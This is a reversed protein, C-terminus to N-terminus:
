GGRAQHRTRRAIRRADGRLADRLLLRVGRHDRGGVHARAGRRRQSRSRAWSHARRDDAGLAPASRTIVSPSQAFTAVPGVERVKGLVPDDIEVVEGNAIIQPHDLAEESTGCMEFPLDNQSLFQPLLEAWTQERIREWLMDEWAQADDATAFFPAHAFREEELTGELGVSRLLALAQHPQQPSFNIWRGDKTCLCLSYRSAAMGGGPATNPGAGGGAAASRAALQVHYIGFYDAPIMGQVLSTDVRQGRGTTERAVLAALIGSVAM